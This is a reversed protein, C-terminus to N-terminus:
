TKTDLFLWCTSFFFIWSFEGKEWQSLKLDSQDNELNLFSQIKFCGWDSSASVIEPDSTEIDTRVLRYRSPQQKRRLFNGQSLQCFRSRCLFCLCVFSKPPAGISPSSPMYSGWPCAPDCRCHKPLGFFFWFFDQSVRWYVLLAVSFGVMKGSIYIGNLM